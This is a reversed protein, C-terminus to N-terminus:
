FNNKLKETIENLKKIIEDKDKEFQIVDEKTIPFGENQVLSMLEYQIQYQIGKLGYFLEKMENVNM